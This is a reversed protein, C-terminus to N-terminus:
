ISSNIALDAEFELVPDCIAKLDDRGNNEHLRLQDAGFLRPQMQLVIM